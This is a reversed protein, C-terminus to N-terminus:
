YDTMLKTTTTTTTGGKGTAVCKVYYTTGAKLGSIYATILTGSVTASVSSKPNSTTGYYIKASTVKAEDKNYIKYVVKLQTRYTTVDYYAVDPKEYNSFSGGNGPGTGSSSSDREKGYKYVVYKIGDIEAFVEGWYTPLARSEDAKLLKRLETMLDQEDPTLKEGRAIKENLANFSDLYFSTYPSGTGDIFLDVSTSIETGTNAFYKTYIYPVGNYGCLIGYKITKNPYVSQLQSRISINWM